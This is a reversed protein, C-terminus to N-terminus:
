FIEVKVYRGPNARVDEALARISEAAEALKEYLTSDTSLQGLTGEGAEMRLLITELSSSARLLSQSTEQVTALASDARSVASAFDGGSASAEELGAASRNLSETLRAVEEGQAEALASLHGLLSRLEHASAQIDDVTPAALLSQIRELVDEANKGLDPPFDLLGPMTEGRLQEGARLPVTSSGPFVEVTRGGLIGSSVLRTRSDSPVEWGGELELSILVGEQVLTFSHVRGINVGKMQIPDGKRIGGADEVLTSALYRGRFTSPDTLLFLATLVSLAGLIVFIGVQFERRSQGRPIATQLEADTPPTAEPRNNIGNKSM